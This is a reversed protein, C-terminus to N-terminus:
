SRSHYSPLSLMSGNDDMDHNRRATHMEPRINPRERRVTYMGPKSRAGLPPGVEPSVKPGSTDGYEQRLYPEIHLKSEQSSRFKFKSLRSRYIVCAIVMFVVLALGVSLGAVAERTPGGPRSESPANTPQPIQDVAQSTTADQFASVTRSILNSFNPPTVTVEVINNVNVSDQSQTATVTRSIADDPGSSTLPPLTVTVVVISGVGDTRTYPTSVAPSPDPPVSRTPLPVRLSPSPFASTLTMPNLLSGSLSLIPEEINSM